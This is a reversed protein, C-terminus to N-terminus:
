WLTLKSTFPKTFAVPNSHLTIQSLSVDVSVESELGYVKAVESNVLIELDRARRAKEYGDELAAETREALSGRYRWILELGQFKWSTEKSDWDERHLAVLETVAEIASKSVEIIPMRAIAGVEVNLTPSIADLLEKMVTSNCIAGLNLLADQSAFISTGAVDFLFGKPFFRFTTIGSGIKSWSLSPKFYMQPSRIVAKPREALLERGDREWNVVWDQNGYWKRYEGGKNYPFWKKGSCAAEERTLDPGFRDHSVETWVRLFRNNDATAMGQRPSGYIALPRGRVFARRLTDSLQYVIPAGPIKKFEHPGIKFKFPSDGTNIVDLLRHRKEESGLASLRIFTVLSRIQSHNSVIFATNAGFINAHKSVDDLHLFSTLCHDELLNIRFEEFSKITMWSDGTVVAVLGNRQALEMARVVFCGYLDQRASPYNDKLYTSLTVAMNRSGMYPPNAVVVAYEQSLYDAQRIVRQQRSFLEQSFLDNTPMKLTSVPGPSPRILSGLVDAQQFQNYFTEGDAHDGDATVLSDLESPAFSIPELVCINPHVQKNFFTRQRARAKMTLAFAALAGARPDIETGYLNKAIILGPIDSPAYGEEEYIAYLLDFAYTLMHGSGCAPDIIKLEDPSIVKLFDTEEDVPAIYYEMQEALRSGPRNLLWLRGLSNEVLYRVIWHPTFLQTAAPIEAADAKKGKKFGAFVDATRESIYFQYLWGIVEVDQCVEETLVAAARALVSDDALLNAPILLETYDGEREFMFPMSRNWYRCYEALLLAYAEGQSDDSHRTGNLLSTVTEM